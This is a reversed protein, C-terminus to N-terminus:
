STDPNSLIAWHKTEFVIEIEVLSNLNNKLNYFTSFHASFESKFYGINLGEHALGLVFQVNTHSLAVSTECRLWISKVLSSM